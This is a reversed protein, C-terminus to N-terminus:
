LLINIKINPYIYLKLYLILKPYFHLKNLYVLYMAVHLARGDHGNFQVTKKQFIPLM